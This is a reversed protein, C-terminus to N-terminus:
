HGFLCHLSWLMMNLFALFPVWKKIELYDLLLSPSFVVALSIIPHAKFCVCICIYIYIYDRDRREEQLQCGPM